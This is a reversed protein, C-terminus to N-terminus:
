LGKADLYGFIAQFHGTANHHMTLAHGSGEQIHVEVDSAAPFM